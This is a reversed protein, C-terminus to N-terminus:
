ILSICTDDYKDGKYVSGIEFRLTVPYPLEKPLAIEQLDPM